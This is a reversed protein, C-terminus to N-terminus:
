CLLQVYGFAMMMLLAFHVRNIVVAAKRTGREKTEEEQVNGQEM